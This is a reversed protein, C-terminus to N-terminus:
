CLNARPQRDITTCAKAQPSGRCIAEAGPSHLDVPQPFDGGRAMKELEAKVEPDLRVGIAHTKVMAVNYRPTTSLAVPRTRTNDYTTMEVVVRTLLVLHSLGSGSWWSAYALGRSLWVLEHDPDIAAASEHAIPVGLQLGAALHEPDLVAKCAVLSPGTVLLEFLRM